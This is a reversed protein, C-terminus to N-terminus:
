KEGVAPHAWKKLFAIVKKPDHGKTDIDKSELSGTEQTTIQQGAEDLVVLVPLGFKVPDGYLSDIDMNDNKRGVDVLVTQYKEALCTKIAENTELLYDLARCWPCWNAGFILLIHQHNPEANRIATQIAAHVDTSPDYPGPENNEGGFATAPILIMAFLCLGLLLINGSIKIKM